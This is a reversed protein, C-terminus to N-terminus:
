DGRICQTTLPVGLSLPVTLLRSTQSDSPHTHSKSVITAGDINLNVCLAASKPLTSAVKTKLSSLFVARKFSGDSFDRM